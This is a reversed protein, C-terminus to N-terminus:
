NQKNCNTIDKFPQELTTLSKVYNKSILCELSDCEGTQHTHADKKLSITKEAEKFIKKLNNKENNEKGLSFSVPYNVFYKKNGLNISSDKILDKYASLDPDVKEKYSYDTFGYVTTGVLKTPTPESNEDKNLDVDNGLYIHAQVPQLYAYNWASYLNTLYTAFSKQDKIIEEKNNCDIQEQCCKLFCGLETKLPCKDTTCQTCKIEPIDTKEKNLWRISSLVNIKHQTLLYYRALESLYKYKKNNGIPKWESRNFYQVKSTDSLNEIWVKIRTANSDQSDKGYFWVEVLKNWNPAVENLKNTRTELNLLFPISGGFPILALLLKPSYWIM